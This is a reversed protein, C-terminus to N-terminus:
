RFAVLRVVFTQLGEQGIKDAEGVLKKAERVCVEKRGGFVLKSSHFSM